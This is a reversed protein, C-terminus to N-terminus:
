EIELGRFKEVFEKFSQAKSDKESLLPNSVPWKIGLDSDNWKITGQSTPNYYNSMKYLLTCDNTLTCMGLALGKPVYLMNKNQESLIASDWCGFMSSNKRIDVFVMFIEGHVARVLKTETNPPFQFHLGRITGKQKSYSHNEQVWRQELGHDQFLTDDYTRMFFGRHDEHVELEIEFVGKMKREKIQM